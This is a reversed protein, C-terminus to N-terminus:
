LTTVGLKDFYGEEIKQRIGAWDGGKYDALHYVRPDNSPRNISPDGDHFRDTMAFYIVEDRPSRPAEAHTFWGGRGGRRGETTTATVVAYNEPGWAAEDLQFLITGETESVLYEASDLARNGAYVTVNELKEESGLRAIFGGQPGAGAMGAALPAFEVTGAVNGEVRLVSNGFGSSDQEPNAPDAMWEGDVVLKYTWTGPAVGKRLRFVGDDGRVMPDKDMSWGNFAGAVSVRTPNTGEPPSYSFDITPYSTVLVPFSLQHPEGTALDQVAVDVVAIGDAGPNAHLHLVSGDTDFRLMAPPDARVAIVGGFGGPTTGELAVRATEEPVLQVLGLATPVTPAPWIPAADNSRELPAMAGHHSCGAFTAALLAVIPLFPHNMSLM